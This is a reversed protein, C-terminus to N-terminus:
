QNEQARRLEWLLNAITTFPATTFQTALASFAPFALAAQDAELVTAYSEFLRQELPGILPEKEPADEAVRQWFGEIQLSGDRNLTARFTALNDTIM